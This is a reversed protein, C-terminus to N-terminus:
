NIQSKHQEQIINEIKQNKIDYFVVNGQKSGCVVYQSNPSICFKNNNSGFTFLDHEFTQMLKRKRLDWIKITDDKSASVIYKEDPTIRVCSVPDAHAGELQFLKEKTKANYMKISTDKHGSVIYTETRSVHADYCQSFTNIVRTPKFSNIDWFKITQDLSATMVEKASFIFKTSTISDQHAGFTTQTKMTRLNMYSCRQDKSCVMLFNNDHSFALCSIAAKNTFQHKRKMDKVNWICVDKDTGGTAIM